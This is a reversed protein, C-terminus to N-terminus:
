GRHVPREMREGEWENRIGSATAESGWFARNERRRLWMSRGGPVWRRVEGQGDDTRHGWHRPVHEALPLCEGVIQLIFSNTATGSPLKAKSGRRIIKM